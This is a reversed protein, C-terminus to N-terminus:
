IVSNMKEWGNNISIFVFDENGLENHIKNYTPFSKACTVCWSAWFEVFIVKGEYQTLDVNEGSELSVLEPLFVDDGISLKATAVQASLLVTLALLLKKM